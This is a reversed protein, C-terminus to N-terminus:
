GDAENHVQEWCEDLLKQINPMTYYEIMDRNLDGSFHSFGSLPNGGCILKTVTNGCLDITPLLAM